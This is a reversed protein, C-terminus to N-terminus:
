FYMLTGLPASFHQFVIKIQHVQCCKVKQKAPSPFCLAKPFPQTRERLELTLIEETVDSIKGPECCWSQCIGQM